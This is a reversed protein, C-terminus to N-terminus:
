ALVALAEWRSAKKKILAEEGCLHFRRAEKESEFCM